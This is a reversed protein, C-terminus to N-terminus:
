QYNNMAAEERQASKTGDIAAKHTRLTDELDEKTINGASYHKWLEKMSGEHGLNAAIIFHKVARDMDDNEEEIGGLNHRAQVHGGIAAKECHYVVKKGNDKGSVEGNRYVASLNHHADAYGLKAAKTWYEVASNYDGERYFIGGMASMAAPDNAKVRKMTRKKNEEDDDALPERCFPCNDGGRSIFNAYVCGDCIHKSCCSYSSSKNPDYPMPLFCLPCEGLHSGDPQTFLRKDHLIVSRKNCEEGHQERHEEKCNDGCYKVLDCGGCDELKINDVEAIGCNACVCVRRDAEESRRMTIKM